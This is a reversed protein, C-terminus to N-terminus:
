GSEEVRIERLYRASEEPIATNIYMGSGLEFGAQISLRPIISLYWHFYDTHVLHTPLSRIVLNYDPDNLGADVKRLVSRLLGALDNLEEATTQNFASMHRLPYVWIHFPTLAAFPIFAIFHRSSLLVRDGSVREDKLTRCFVCEGTEDFYRVAIDLRSRIQPSVVPMAVIQSHPHPQSTGAGFGHNRFIVISEMRRDAQLEIYRRKYANLTDAIDRDSLLHPHGNHEPHEVLVEHYGVANMSRHIGNLKRQPMGEPTVAPFKNRVLRLKWHGEAPIRWLEEGTEAENGPCFPCSPVRTESATFPERKVAFAEPKRARESAIVVWDRTIINQRLEAMVTM